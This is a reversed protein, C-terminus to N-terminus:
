PTIVASGAPAPAASQAAPVVDGDIRVLKDGDFIVSIRREETLVGRKRYRYVYDWRDERFPDIILPTGLAFRVQSRTMGPRLKGVMEQSIFNGQQVDIKHPTLVPLLPVNQCGALLLAILVFKRM